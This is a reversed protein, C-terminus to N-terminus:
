ALLEEDVGVVDEREGCLAFDGGDAVDATIVQAVVGVLAVVTEGDAGVVEGVLGLRHGHAFGPCNVVVGKAVDDGVDELGTLGDGGVLEVVLDGGTVALELLLVAGGGEDVLGEVEVEDSEGRGWCTSGGGWCCYGKGGLATGYVAIGDGYFFGLCSEILIIITWSM